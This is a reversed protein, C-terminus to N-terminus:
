MKDNSSSALRKTSLLEEDHFAATVLAKPSVQPGALILMGVLSTSLVEKVYGFHGLNELGQGQWKTKDSALIFSTHQQHQLQLCFIIDTLFQWKGLCETAIPEAPVIEAALFGNAVCPGKMNIQCALNSAPHGPAGTEMAGQFAHLLLEAGPFLLASPPHAITM